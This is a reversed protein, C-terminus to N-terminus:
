HQSVVIIKATGTGSQFLKPEPELEPDLVPVPDLVFNLFFKYLDQRKVTPLLM